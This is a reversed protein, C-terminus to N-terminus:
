FKVYFGVFGANTGYGKEEIKYNSIHLAKAEFNFKPVRYSYEIIALSDGGYCVEPCDHKESHGGVGIYLFQEAGM